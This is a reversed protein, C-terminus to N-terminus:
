RRIFGRRVRGFSECRQSRSDRVTSRDDVGSAEIDTLLHTSPADPARPTALSTTRHLAQPMPHSRTQDQRRRTPPGHLRTDSPRTPAPHSRRHLARPQRTPRRTPQPPSPEAKSRIDSPDSRRRRTARFAAETRCRGHHSWALVFTAATVHGIGAQGLLQPAIQRLLTTMARDHEAIENDLHTIRQALSRMTLRTCQQTVSRTRSSRFSGCTTVLARTSLSRLEARLDDDATVVLAKLENIAATRARVAGARALTHVRLAERQGDHARPINLRERGLVERAAQIADLEDSKAADKTAKHRAWDFEIVWEDVRSLAATLGRGFSASGEIAWVREGPTTHADAWAVAHAYGDRDASFRASEIFRTTDAEIIAATIWDKDPDIGIVHDVLEALM